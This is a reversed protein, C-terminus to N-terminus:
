VCDDTHVCDNSVRIVHPTARCRSPHNFVTRVDSHVTLFFLEEREPFFGASFLSGRERGRRIICKHYTGICVTDYWMDYLMYVKIIQLLAEPLNSGHM